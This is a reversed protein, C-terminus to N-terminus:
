AHTQDADKTVKAELVLTLDSSTRWKVGECYKGLGYMFCLYYPFNHIRDIDLYGFVM